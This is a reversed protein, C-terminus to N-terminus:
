HPKALRAYFAETEQIRQDMIRVVYALKFRGQSIAKSMLRMRENHTLRNLSM